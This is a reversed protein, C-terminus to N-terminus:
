STTSTPTASRSWRRTSAGRGSRPCCSRATCRAAATAVAQGAVALRVAGRGAHGRPPPRVAGARHADHVADSKLRRRRRACSEESGLGLLVHAGCGAQVRAITLADAVQDGAAVLVTAGVGDLTRLEPGRPGRRARSRGSRCATPSRSATRPSRAARTPASSCSRTPSTTSRRSRSSCRAATRDDRSLAMVGLFDKATTGAPVKKLGDMAAFVNHIRESEIPGPYVVNVRMGRPGLQLALHRSFTNLAAKPVVYPARGYYRTRSFITSVNVISAGPKLHPAAARCMNWTLGFLNGIADRV